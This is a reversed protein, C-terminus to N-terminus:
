QEEAPCAGQWRKEPQVDRGVDETLHGSFRNQVRQGYLIALLKILAEKTIKQM